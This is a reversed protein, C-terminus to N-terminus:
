GQGTRRDKLLGGDSATLLEKEFQPNVVDSFIEDRVGDTQQEYILICGLQHLLSIGLTSYIILLKEAGGYQVSVTGFQASQFIPCQLQLLCLWKKRPVIHNGNSGSLWLHILSASPATGNFHDQSVYPCYQMQLPVAGVDCNWDVTKQESWSSSWVSGPRTVAVLM